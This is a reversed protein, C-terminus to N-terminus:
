HRKNIPPLVSAFIFSGNYNVRVGDMFIYLDDEKDYVASEVKTLLIFQSYVKKVEEYPTVYKSLMMFTHTEQIKLMEEYANINNISTM